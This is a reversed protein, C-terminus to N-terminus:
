NNKVVYMIMQNANAYFVTNYLLVNCWWKRNLNRLRYKELAKILNGSSGVKNRHLKQTNLNCIKKNGLSSVEDNDTESIQFPKDVVERYNANHIVISRRTSFYGLLQNNAALDIM